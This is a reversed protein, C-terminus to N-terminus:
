SGGDRGRRSFRVAGAGGLLLLAAVGLLGMVETGTRALEGLPGSSGGAPPDPLDLRHGDSGGMEGGQPPTGTVTATNDVHGAEMDTETLRCTATATVSEGPAVTGEAGPWDGFRVESIGELEDTVSVGTLATNGTNTVTFVY